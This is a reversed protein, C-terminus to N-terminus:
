CWFLGCRVRVARFWGVCLMIQARDHVRKCKKDEDFSLEREGMEGAKLKLRRRLEDEGILIDDLDCIMSCMTRKFTLGSVSGEFIEEIILPRLERM